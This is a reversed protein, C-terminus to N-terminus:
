PDIINKIVVGTYYTTIIKRYDYGEKAMGNAGYQCLGVGHGYGITNFIMKDGQLEVTFNNSRLDLKDRVTVGSLMKNGIRIQDIRGSDTKDIVQTAGSGNQVATVVQTEAGLLKEVEALSFEKKDHYRPSKQDWSCPVSVLYPYDIGWVEKASATREGSTSHFVANIFEGNYTVVQGRTEAVAQSVKGWYREYNKGWREKLQEERLFAQNQHYDTSVDAGPQDAVGSGGFVIMNKVAYTRASVAQAKLADLEFEAPMEAAVVGKVYDELNMAVIRKEEHMYVKISIDEGKVAKNQHDLGSVAKNINGVVVITAPIIIVLVLVMLVAFALVKKV